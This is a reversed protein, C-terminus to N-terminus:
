KRSWAESVSALSYHMHVCRMLCRNHDPPNLYLGVIDRVKEIFFPIPPSSSPSRAILNCVLCHWIANYTSKSVGTTDALTRVSLHTAAKLKRTLATNLLQAIQEEDHTRPPGPKLQDHALVKRLHRETDFRLGPHVVDSPIKPPSQKMAVLGCPSASPL